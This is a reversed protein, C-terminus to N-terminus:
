NKINDARLSNSRNTTIIVSSACKALERSIDSGSIGMGVIIVNKDKFM